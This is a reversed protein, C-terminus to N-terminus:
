MYMSQNKKIDNFWTSFNADNSAREKEKELEARLDDIARTRGKGMFATEMAVRNELETQLALLRSKFMSCGYEFGKNRELGARVDEMEKEIEEVERVGSPAPQKQAKKLLVEINAKIQPGNYALDQTVGWCKLNLVTEFQSPDLPPPPDNDNCKSTDPLLKIADAFATEQQKAMNHYSGNNLMLLLDLGGEEDLQQLKKLVPHSSLSEIAGTAAPDTSQISTYLTCVHSISYNFKTCDGSHCATM